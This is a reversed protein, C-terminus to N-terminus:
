CPVCIPRRSSRPRCRAHWCRSCRRSCTPTAPSSAAETLTTALAPLIQGTLAAVGADIRERDTNLVDIEVFQDIVEITAGAFKGGGDFAGGLRGVLDSSPMSQNDAVTRAAAILAQALPTFAEVDAAAQAIVTAM